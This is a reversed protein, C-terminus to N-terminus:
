GFAPRKVIVSLVPATVKIRSLLFKSPSLYAGALMQLELKQTSAPVPPCLVGAFGDCEASLPEAYVRLSATRLKLFAMRVQL